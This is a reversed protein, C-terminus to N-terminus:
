RLGLTVYRSTGDDLLIRIKWTGVTMSKTALNFVYQNATEDYRFLNGTSAQSTSVADVETGMVGNSIKSLYIKAVATKVFNGSADTLKFKVPVTSGLKFVSTGDPDIPRLIGSYSYQVSYSVTKEATNGANDASAVTFSKIGLSATDILSGLEVAGTCSTVGSLADTCEYDALVQQNLFYVAGDSPTALTIMPPCIDESVEVLASKINNELEFENPASVVAITLNSLGTLEPVVTFNLEVVEGPGIIGITQTDILEDNLFLRVPLAVNKIEGDNRVKVSVKNEVGMQMRPPVTWELLNNDVLDRRTVIVPLAYDRYIRESGEYGSLNMNIYYAGLETSAPISVEYLFDRSYDSPTNGLVVNELDGGGLLIGEPVRFTVNVATNEGSLIDNVLRLTVKTESGRETVVVNPYVQLETNLETSRTMVSFNLWVDKYYDLHKDSYYKTPFLMIVTHAYNAVDETSSVLSEKPYYEYEPILGPLSEEGVVLAGMALDVNEFNQPSLLGYSINYIEQNRPHFISIIFSPTQPAGTYPTYDEVLVKATMDPIELETVSPYIMSTDMVEMLRPESRIHIQVQEPLADVSFSYVPDDYGTLYPDGMYYLQNSNFGAVKQAEEYQLWADLGAAIIKVWKLYKKIKEYDITGTKVKVKSTWVEMYEMELSEYYLYEEVLGSAFDEYRSYELYEMSVSIYEYGSLTIEEFVDVSKFTEDKLYGAVDKIDSPVDAWPDEIVDVALGRLTLAVDESVIISNISDSSGLYNEMHMKGELSPEIEVPLVGEGFEVLDIVFAALNMAANNLSMKSPYNDAEYVVTDSVPQNHTAMTKTTDALLTHVSSPEFGYRLFENRAIVPEPVFLFLVIDKFSTMIGRLNTNEIEIDGVKGLVVTDIDCIDDVGQQVDQDITNVNIAGKWLDWEEHFGTIIAGIDLYAYIKGRDETREANIGFELGFNFITRGFKLGAMSPNLSFEALPFKGAELGLYYTHGLPILTGIRYYDYNDKGAEDRADNGIAPSVQLLPNEDIAVLMAPQSETRDGFSEKSYKGTSNLALFYEEGRYHRSVFTERDEGGWTRLVNISSALAYSMYSSRYAKTTVINSYTQTAHPIAGVILPKKNSARASKINGEVQSIVEADGKLGNFVVFRANPYKAAVETLGVLELVSLKQVLAKVREPDSVGFGEDSLSEFYQQEFIPYAIVVENGNHSLEYPKIDYYRVEGAVPYEQGFVDIPVAEFPTLYVEQNLVYDGLKVVLKYGSGIGASEPVSFIEGSKIYAYSGEQQIITDLDESFKLTSGQYLEVSIQSDTSVTGNVLIDLYHPKKLTLYATSEEQGISSYLPNYEEDFLLINASIINQIPEETGDGTEIDGLKVVPEKSAVQMMFLDDWKNNDTSYSDSGISNGLSVYGEASAWATTSRKTGDFWLGMGSGDYLFEESIWRDQMPSYIGFSLPGDHGEYFGPYNNRDGHLFYVANPNIGVYPVERFMFTGAGEGGASDEKNWTKLKIRFPQNISIGNSAANMYVFAYGYKCDAEGPVGCEPTELYGNNEFINAESNVKTWYPDLSGDNFDEFFPFVLNGNGINTLTSNGYYMYISTEGGAPISPIKVWVVASSVNYSEIWYNLPSEGLDTFRLDGYDQRMFFDYPVQLLVPYNALDESSESNNIIITRRVSGELWDLPAKTVSFKYLVDPAEAENVSTPGQGALTGTVSVSDTDLVIWTSPHVTSWTKSAYLEIQQPYGSSSGYRVQNTLGWYSRQLWTVGNYRYYTNENNDNYLSGYVLYNRPSSDINFTVSVSGESYECIPFLISYKCADSGTGWPWNHFSNSTADFESASIYYGLVYVGDTFNSKYVPAKSLTAGSGIAGSSALSTVTQALVDYSLTKTSDYQACFHTYDPTQSLGFRDQLNISPMMVGLASGESSSNALLYIKGSVKDLKAYFHYEGLNWYGTPYVRWVVDSGRDLIINSIRSSDVTGLNTITDSVEFQGSISAASVSAINLSFAFLFALFIKSISGGDFFIKSM